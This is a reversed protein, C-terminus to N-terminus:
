SRDPDSNSGVRRADARSRRAADSGHLHHTNPMINEGMTMTEDARSLTERSFRDVKSGISRTPGGLQGSLTFGRASARRRKAGAPGKLCAFRGRGPRTRGLPFWTSKNWGIRALWSMPRSGSMRLRTLARAGPTERLGSCTNLPFLTAQSEDSRAVPVWTPTSRSGQFTRM